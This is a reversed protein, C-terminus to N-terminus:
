FDSLKSFNEFWKKSIPRIIKELLKLNEEEYKVSLIDSSEDYMKDYVEDYMSNLVENRMYEYIEDNFNPKDYDIRTFKYYNERNDTSISIVSNTLKEDLLMNEPEIGILSLIDYLKYMKQNEFDESSTFYKFVDINEYYYVIKNLDNTYFLEVDFPKDNKIKNILENKESESTSKPISAFLFSLLLFGKFQIDYYEKIKEYDLIGSNKLENEILKSILNTQNIIRELIELSIHSSFDGVGILELKSSMIDKLYGIDSSASLNNVIGRKEAMLVISNRTIVEELTIDFMLKSFKEIDDRSLKTNGSKEFTTYGVLLSLFSNIFEESTISRDGIKAIVM